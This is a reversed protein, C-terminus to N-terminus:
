KASVLEGADSVSLFGNVLKFSKSNYVAEGGIEKLVGKLNPNIFNERKEKDKENLWSDAYNEFMSRLARDNYRSFTPQLMM